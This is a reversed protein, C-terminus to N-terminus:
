AYVSLRKTDRNVYNNYLDDYEDKLREVEGKLKKIEEDKSELIEFLQDNKEIVSQCIEALKKDQNNM